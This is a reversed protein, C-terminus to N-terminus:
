SSVVGAKWHHLQGNDTEALARHQSQVRARATVALYRTDNSIRAHQRSGVNQAMFPYRRRWHDEDVAGRVRDDWSGLKRLSFTRQAAQTEFHLRM